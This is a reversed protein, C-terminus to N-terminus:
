QLADRFAPEAEDFRHMARLANGINLYTRPYEPALAQALRYCHLAEDLDGGDELANGQQLMRDAAVTM